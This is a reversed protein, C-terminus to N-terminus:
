GEVMSTTTTRDHQPYRNIVQTPGQVEEDETASEEGESSGLVEESPRSMEEIESESDSTEVNTLGPKTSGPTMPYLRNLPVEYRTSMFQQGRLKQITAVDNEVKM